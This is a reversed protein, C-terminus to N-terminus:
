PDIKSSDSFDKSQVYLNHIVCNNFVMSHPVSKYSVSSSAVELQPDSSNNICELIQNSVQLKNQISEDVYGEAVATSKWGGHRKLALIDGGADVLLTASSRRFCHGTYLEPNPLNLYAAVVKGLEGIKNIGVNQSTCKGKQYNLFFAKNQVNKPRLKIYNKVLASYKGTITFSRPKKTKTNQLTVIIHSGFDKVDAFQLQHLEQRRCAGFIGFIM